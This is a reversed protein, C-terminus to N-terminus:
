DFGGRRTLLNALVPRARWVAATNGDHKGAAAAHADDRITDGAADAADAAAGDDAYAATADDAAAHRTPGVATANATDAADAATGATAGNCEGGLTITGAARITSGNRRSTRGSKTPNNEKCAEPQRGHYQQEHRHCCPKCSANQM